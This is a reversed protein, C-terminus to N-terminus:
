EARVTRSKQPGRLQIAHGPPSTDAKHRRAAFHPPPGPRLAQSLSGLFPVTHFLRDCTRDAHHFSHVPGAAAPGKGAPDPPLRGHNFIRAKDTFLRNLQRTSRGTLSALQGLSLPESINNEMAELAALTAADTTGFRSILGSRQPGSSPRVDTHLFWDSVMQAFEYGHHRAILEHMMDMPAIGGACTIRDRDFVYLTRELALELDLANLVEAHEWHVTMRRNTMLGARALVVPGGSIGGLVVGRRAMRRLWGFVADNYYNAPAGGAAVFVLDYDSSSDLRATGDISAGGSSVSRIGDAPINRLSYLQKGALLNAARFPESVSAYSMLAFGDILLFGVRFIPRNQDFKAM